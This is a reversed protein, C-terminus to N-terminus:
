FDASEARDVFSRGGLLMARLVGATQPSHPFLDDVRQRLRTRLAALRTGLRPAPSSIVEALNSARLTAVLDLNQRALFERRDFAGADRYIM